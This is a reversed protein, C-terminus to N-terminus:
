VVRGYLCPCSTRQLSRMRSALNIGIGGVPSMAHAADGVCLLGPQCWERLRDVTVTLLKVTDWDKLEGVRDGMFPVIAAIQARFADIGGARIEDFAGKPIVFGCQWYDGRDLMVLIRNGSIHGLVAGPDDPRRSLRMWLVDIPAGLNQVALGARARVISHRGDAGVVLPSRIELRGASTTAVVGAVRDDDRLLDTVEARMMLRFTPYTRAHEVLFDLFHWQPM